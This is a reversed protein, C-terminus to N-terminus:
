VSGKVSCRFLSQSRYWDHSSHSQMDMKGPRSPTELTHKLPKWIDPGLGLEFRPSLNRRLILGYGLWGTEALTFVGNGLVIKLSTWMSMGYWHTQFSAFLNTWCIRQHLECYREQGICVRSKIRVTFIWKITKEKPLRLRKTHIFCKPENLSGMAPQDYLYVSKLVDTCAFASRPPPPPSTLLLNGVSWIKKLKM